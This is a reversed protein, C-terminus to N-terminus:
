CTIYLTTWIHGPVSQTYVLWLKDRDYRFWRTIGDCTKKLIETDWLCVNNPEKPFNPIAFILNTMVTRRDTRMSCSPEWQVSKSSIQYKLKKLLRDFFSLNWYLIVLIVTLKYWFDECKHSYRASNKKSHSVNWIFTASCILVCIIDLLKRELITGNILYHWFIHHLWLPWVHGYTANAKCAQYTFSCALVCLCGHM